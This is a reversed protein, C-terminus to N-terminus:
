EIKYNSVFYEDTTLDVFEKINIKNLSKGGDRDYIYVYLMMSSDETIRKSYSEAFYIDGYKGQYDWLIFTTEEGDSNVRTEKTKLNIGGSFAGYEEELMAFFRITVGNKEFEVYGEPSNEVYTWGELQKVALNIPENTRWRTIIYGETDVYKPIGEKGSNDVVPEEIHEEYGQVFYKDTTIEVYKDIDIKGLSVGGDKDSIFLSLYLDDGLKKYLSYGYAASGNQGKFDKYIVRIEDGDTNTIINDWVVYGKNESSSINYNYNEEDLASYRITIGDKDMENIYFDGNRTRTHKWGDLKKVGLGVTENILWKGLEFAVEDTYKPAGQAVDTEIMTGNEGNITVKKGKEVIKEGSATNVVVAGEEVVVTTKNKEKDYSVEFTTGRVSATANPTKVNFESDKGLKNEIEILTSGYELNITLKGKKSNGASEISFCTNERALIHKDSDVLLEVASNTATTVMDRAKLNLGKFLYDVKDDRSLAASGEINEVKIVRYSQKKRISIVVVAAVIVAVIGLVILAIRIKKKKDM